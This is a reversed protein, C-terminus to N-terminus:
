RSFLYGTPFAKQGFIGPIRRGQALGQQRRQLQFQPGTELHM